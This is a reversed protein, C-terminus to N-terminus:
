WQNRCYDRNIVRCWPQLRTQVTQDILAQRVNLDDAYIITGCVAAPFNQLFVLAPVASYRYESLFVTADTSGAICTYTSCFAPEQIKDIRIVPDLRFSQANQGILHDFPLQVDKTQVTDAVSIIICALYSTQKFVGGLIGLAIAPGALICVWLIRNLSHNVKYRNDRQFHEFDLAEEKYERKTM